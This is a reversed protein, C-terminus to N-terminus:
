TSGNPVSYYIISVYVSLSAAASCIYYITQSRNPLCPSADAWANASAFLKVGDIGSIFRLVVAQSTGVSSLVMVNTQFDGANPPIVTSLSVSTETSASGGSLVLTDTLGNAYYVRDGAVYIRLLQTSANLWAACIYAYHTYGSPLTPASSSTSVVTAITGDTKGIWWFHVWSNASFAGAQDRGNAAPGATSIDCTLTGPATKLFMSGSADRLVVWDATFDM